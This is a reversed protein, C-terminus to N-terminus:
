ILKKTENSDNIEYYTVGYKVLDANHKEALHINEKLLDVSFIDDNDSFVIFEGKAVKLGSNRANSIGGNVQNIVHIRSDIKSYEDCIDSSKDTSGDNVLILEFDKYSQNLISDIAERLFKESNYVPMIISIKPM